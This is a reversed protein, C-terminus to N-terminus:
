EHKPEQQSAAEDLAERLSSRLSEALMMDFDEKLQKMVGAMLQKAQQELADQMWLTLEVKMRPLVRAYLADLLAAEDLGPATAPAVTPAMIPVLPALPLAESVAEIHIDDAPVAAALQPASLPEAPSAAVAAAPVPEPQPHTRRVRIVEAIVPQVAPEPQAPPLEDLDLPPEAGLDRAWALEVEKDGADFAPRPSWDGGGPLAAAPQGLGAAPSAAAAALGLGGGLVGTPLSDLSITQMVPSAAPAEDMLPSSQPLPAEVPPAIDADSLAPAEAEVEASAIAPAFPADAPASPAAESIAPEPVIDTPADDLWAEAPPLALADPQEGAFAGDDVVTAAPGPQLSALIDDVSLSLDPVVVAEVHPVLPVSDVVPTGALSEAAAQWPPSDVAVPDAPLILDADDVLAQQPWSAAPAAQEAPAPLVPPVNPLTERAEPPLDLDDATLLPPEVTQPPEWTGAWEDDRSDAAFVEAVPADADAQSLFADVPLEPMEAAVDFDDLQAALKDVSAQEALVPPTAAPLPEFSARAFLAGLGDGRDAPLTDEQLSFSFDDAAEAAPAPPRVPDLGPLVDDLSLEAPLDVELDLSPLREILQSTSLGADDAPLEEGLVDELTLEPPLTLEPVEDAPVAQALADLEATFDYVPVEAATDTEVVDTLVPLDLASWANDPSPNTM